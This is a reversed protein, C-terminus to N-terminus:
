FANDQATTLSFEEQNDDNIYLDIWQLLKTVRSYVGPKNPRGCGEGWSVVGALRWDGAETKCVLPGGSDGQCSDVGGEMVGACLMRPTLLSGYVFSQSCLSDGIVQVLAQRLHSSLSGGERTYGWGTVWCSSGSPFSDRVHPLCVPRVGDEMQIDSQTRLLCLDYDNNDKSYKPHPHIQLTNYRKGQSSDSLSVTDVVVVWDSEDMMNYEEFCHAATIVWRPTVIAGGCVHRGQWHLSTQWGWQDRVADTGGVIRMERSVDRVASSCDSTINVTLNAPYKGSVFPMQTISCNQTDGAATHFDRVKNPLCVLKVIIAICILLIIVASILTTKLALRSPCSPWFRFGSVDSSSSKSAAVTVDREELHSEKLSAKPDILTNPPLYPMIVSLTYLPLDSVRLLQLCAPSTMMHTNTPTYPTLTTMPHTLHLSFPTSIEGRYLPLTQHQPTVDSCDCPVGPTVPASMLGSATNLPKPCTSLAHPPIGTSTHLCPQFIKPSASNDKAPSIKYFGQASAM